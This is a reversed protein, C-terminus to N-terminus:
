CLALLPLQWELLQIKDQRDALVIISLCQFTQVESLFSQLEPKYWNKSLM